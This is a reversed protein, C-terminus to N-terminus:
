FQLDVKGELFEDTYIIISKDNILLKNRYHSGAFRSDSVTAEVGSAVIKIQYPFYNTKNLNLQSKEAETFINVEGLLRAVYDNYPNEYTEKPSDNQILRGQQLVVIKDAWPLVEELNHTSIILSLDNEKVYNFLKERLEFKRSFDLNSFPEDLLLMKPLVALARAIAVRQQQGGSLNKPIVRAFETLGVVDLLEEVKEKKEKLNINSIFKGVNDYVTGYPMLDYNQAVFKMQSEGPVLNGKPGFLKEGEFLIEGDQWDILGYILSLLTSKGCGSEGVLAIIQGEDVNLNLNQFLPKDNQYNFYLNKVELLM